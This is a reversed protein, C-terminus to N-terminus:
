NPPSWREANEALDLSFLTDITNSILVTKKNSTSVYLDCYPRIEKKSIKRNILQLAENIQVDLLVCKNDEINIQEATIAVKCLTIVIPKWNYTVTKMRVNLSLGGREEAYLRLFTSDQVVESGLSLRKAKLKSVKDLGKSWPSKKAM